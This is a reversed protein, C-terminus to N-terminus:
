ADRRARIVIIREQVCETSCKEVYPLSKPKSQDVSRESRVIVPHSLHAANEGSSVACLWDDLRGVIREPGRGDGIQSTSLGRADRPRVAAIKVTAQRGAQEDSGPREDAYGAV